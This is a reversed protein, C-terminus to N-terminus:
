SQLCGNENVALRIGVQCLESQTRAVVGRQALHLWAHATCCIVMVKSSAAMTEPRAMLVGGQEGAQGQRSVWVPTAWMKARLPGQSIQRIVVERHSREFRQAVLDKVSTPKNKAGPMKEWVGTTCAVDMLRTLWLEEIGTILHLSNSYM